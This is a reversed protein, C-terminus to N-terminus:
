IHLIDIDDVARSIRGHGMRGVGGGGGGWKKKKTGCSGYHFEKDNHTHHKIQHPLNVM